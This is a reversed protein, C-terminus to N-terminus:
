AALKRVSVKVKSLSHQPEVMLTREKTNYVISDPMDADPYGAYLIHSWYSAVHFKSHKSEIVHTCEGITNTVSLLYCNSDIIVGDPLKCVKNAPLEVAYIDETEAHLKIDDLKVKHM